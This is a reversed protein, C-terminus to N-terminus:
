SAFPGGGFPSSVGVADETKSIVTIQDHNGLDLGHERHAPTELTAYSQDRPVLADRRAATRRADCRIAITPNRVATSPAEVIAYRSSVWYRMQALSSSRHSMQASPVSRRVARAVVRSAM